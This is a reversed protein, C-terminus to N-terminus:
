PQARDKSKLSSVSTEPTRGDPRLNITSTFTSCYSTKVGVAKSVEGPNEANHFGSVRARSWPGGFAGVVGFESGLGM